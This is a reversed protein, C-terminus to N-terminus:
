GVAGALCELASIELPKMDLQTLHTKRKKDGIYLRPKDIRLHGLPRLEPHCGRFPSSELDGPRQLLLFPPNINGPPPPDNRFNRLPHRLKNIVPHPSTATFKPM